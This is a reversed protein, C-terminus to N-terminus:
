GLNRFISHRTFEAGERAVSHAACNKERPCHNLLIVGLSEALELIADVSVKVESLDEEVRNLNNILELCDSNMEIMSPKEPILELFKLGAWLAKAEFVKM